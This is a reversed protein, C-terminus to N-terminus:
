ARDGLTQKVWGGVQFKATHVLRAVATANFVFCWSHPRVTSTWARKCEADEGMFDFESIGRDICDRLLDWTILQGPSYEGFAEAYGHKFSLYRAGDKLGLDFAIAQEKSRLISLWLQGRDAAQLALGAYFGHTRGDQLIATGARGKWGNAELQFAEMLRRPLGADATCVRELTVPGQELLRRRRRRLSSRVNKSRDREFAEVSSPLSLYPSRPGPAVGVQLGAAEAAHVLHLAAAGQAVDSLRLVDWGGRAGLHAVLAGAAQEPHVALLDFRGSHENTPSALLRVSLGFMRVRTELLPLAAVLGGEADRGLLVTLESWAGFHDMWLQLFAHGVFVSGGTAAVLREWESRLAIFAERDRVEEVRAVPGSACTPNEATVRV